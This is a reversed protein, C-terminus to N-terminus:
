SLGPSLAASSAAMDAASISRKSGVGAAPEATDSPRLISFAGGLCTAAKGPVDSVSHKIM